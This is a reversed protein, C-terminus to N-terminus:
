KFDNRVYDICEKVEPLSNEFHYEYEISINGDFGQRKLEDFVAKINTVGHGWPVDHAEDHGFENLDKMHSSMIRGKLVRLAEIPQVGSRVWHGIDACSGMRADRNAMLGAVYWPNWFMYSPDNPRKPHDHIGFRINYKKVLGEVIDLDAVNPESTIGILNLRHAFEFIQEWEKEREAKDRGGASVVGYNVAKINFKKLQEEVQRIVGDPSKHSFTVAPQDSRLRQGPYFEIVKGGAQATKEIAELVTFHNFTYAQCGLAFGNIKYEDPINSPPPNAQSRAATLWLVASLVCTAACIFRTRLSM